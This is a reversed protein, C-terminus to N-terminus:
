EVSKLIESEVQSYFDEKSEIGEDRRSVPRYPTEKFSGDENGLNQTIATDYSHFRKELYNRLSLIAEVCCLIFRTTPFM